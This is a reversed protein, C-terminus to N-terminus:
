AGVAATLAETDAQQFPSYLMDRFSAVGLPKLVPRAARVADEAATVDSPDLAIGARELMGYHGAVCVAARVDVPSGALHSSRVDVLGAIRGALDQGHNTLTDVVVGRDYVDRRRECDTWGLRRMAGIM